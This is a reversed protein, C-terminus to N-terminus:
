LYKILELEGCFAPKLNIRSSYTEELWSTPSLLSLNVNRSQLQYIVTNKLLVLVMIKRPKPSRAVWIKHKGKIPFKVVLEQSNECIFVFPSASEGDPFKERYEEQSLCDVVDVCGLLCGVPYHSPLEIKLDKKFYHYFQEQEHIEQPTPPKATAAIWLRGRHATYWTRGEHVKIGKVLLSAWPQHMSMCMGEDSMELLEKDQIRLGERKKGGPIKDGIKHRTVGVADEPLVFKPADVPITPNVLDRLDDEQQRVHKPKAGFHIEQIVDDSVDYMNCSASSDEELVQRGAFDLTVKRDKRSAFRQARLEDERKKLKERQGKSLWKNDTSFYDSEDDIVQTRRVSTKDYDLLKEKHKVAKEYGDKQRAATNPLLDKHKDNSLYQVRDADKMLRYRLQESKKSGRALIEQEEKTCVLNGCFLCPGSGEQECVVRGCRTCNNILKHKAAQCECIHRGSLKIVTKEQGEQSFLPIFKNKKKVDTSKTPSTTTDLQDFGNLVKTSHYTDNERQFSKEPSQTKKNQKEPSKKGKGGFYIESEDTKRYVKFNDPPKDSPQCKFLLQQIFEIVKPDSGDLIELMYERMEEADGIGLIYQIKHCFTPLDSHIEGAEGPFPHAVEDEYIEKAKSNKPIIEEVFAYWDLVADKDIDVKVACVIGGPGGQCNM